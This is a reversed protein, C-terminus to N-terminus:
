GVHRTRGCTNCHQRYSSSPMLSSSLEGEDYDEDESTTRCWPCGYKAVDVPEENLNWADHHEYAAAIVRFLGGANWEETPVIFGEGFSKNWVYLAQTPLTQEFIEWEDGTAITNKYQEHVEHLTIEGVDHPVYPNSLFENLEDDTVPLPYEIVPRITTLSKMVQQLSPETKSTPQTM